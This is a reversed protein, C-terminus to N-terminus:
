DELVEVDVGSWLTGYHDVCLVYCDILDSYSFLLGYKQELYEIESESGNTLFYQYIEKQNDIENGEDDLKYLNFRINDWFTEDIEAINNCLVLDLSKVAQDYTTYQKEKKSTM